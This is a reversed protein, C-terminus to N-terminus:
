EESGKIEMRPGEFAWLFEDINTGIQEFVTQFETLNNIDIPETGFVEGLVAKDADTMGKSLSILWTKSLTYDSVWKEGWQRAYERAKSTDKSYSPPPVANGMYYSTSSSGGRGGGGYYSWGGYSSAETSYQNMEGDTMMILFISGIDAGSNVLKELEYYAVRMGDGLNTNGTAKLNDIRSLLASKDAAAKYSFVKANRDKNNDTYGAYSSFPVLIINIKDNKSMNEVLLKANDKLAKIRTTNSFRNSMSGSTDVVMVVTAATKSTSSHVGAWSPMFDSRFALAVGENHYDDGKYVVQISNLCNLMDEINIDSGSGVPAGAANTLKASFEYIITQAAANVPDTPKFVLSYTHRIGNPETFDHGLIRQYFYGDDNHLLNCDVPVNSPEDKGAYEIYVLANAASIEAHTRSCSAPIHVNEMLGLYNWEATLNDLDNFAGKPITFAVTSEQITESLKAAFNADERIITTQLETGTVGVSALNIMSVALIVLFSMLVLAIAVEALTFARRLRLRTNKLNNM